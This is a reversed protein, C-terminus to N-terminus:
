RGSRMPNDIYPLDLLKAVDLALSELHDHSSSVALPLPHTPHTLWVIVLPYGVPRLSTTPRKEIATFEVLPISLPRNFFGFLNREIVVQRDETIVVGAGSQYKGAIFFGTVIMGVIFPMVGFELADTSGRWFGGYGIIILGIILFSGGFAAILKDQRGSGLRPLTWPLSEPAALLPRWPIPEGSALNALEAAPVMAEIPGFGGKLLPLNLCRALAVAFARQDGQGADLQLHGTSRSHHVLTCSAVLRVGRDRYNIRVGRYDQRRFQLTLPVGPLLPRRVSVDGAASIQFRARSWWILALAPLIGPLTTAILAWCFSDESLEARSRIVLLAMLAALGLFLAPFVKNRLRPRLELPLTFALQDASQQSM